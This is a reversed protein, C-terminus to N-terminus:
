VAKLRQLLEQDHTNSSEVLHRMQARWRMSGEAIQLIRDLPAPTHNAAAMNDRAVLDPRLIEAIDLAEQNRAPM